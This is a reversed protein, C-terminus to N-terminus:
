NGLKMKYYINYIYIYERKYNIEYMWDRAAHAGRNRQAFFTVEFVRLARHLQMVTYKQTILISFTESHQSPM